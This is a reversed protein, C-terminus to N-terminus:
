KELVAVFGGRPLCEVNLVSGKKVKLVVVEFSKDDEGDKILKINYKGKDLFNFNIQLTQKEDKGNIGGLYWQNGKKRAIIVNEGPYGEVLKTNDWAVPVNKLFEKPEQPLDYYAQPRDAFHQFGSEFVVSLALEHAYSTIHPHQSDSFTVPTYDMSGIVNRTFPLTANHVAAKSTLVSKNNYWEAGYVAETTMVNPYTRAWGRPVTAGHFNVMIQYKAADKLIDIYYKMMDQQDGNFFDVKIGYVGIDKLWALEKNRKESTLMRDVPTPELWETGSNYWMLPKIGKSNADNVAAVIDGGNTMVDWEWDILVYPWKMEVALDTYEVVKQYDKSGHNFAWYIWSVAGPKIWSTEKIKVPESVDTILTSEVVDSLQGINLAHWQSTWPLTTKVGEQKFDNRAPPYTVKYQNPNKINTLRAACNNETINAESLLVWVPNNNNIKFLAPFGWVQKNDEGKGTDSFPFFDEYSNHFPQVWRHTSEPITYTTTEDIIETLADSKETFEYRFAVGDNYVRFVINMPKNNANVYKFVKENALNECWKRKGSIMEYKENVPESESEGVCRLNGSFQQDKRLIGLPSNPIVETYGSKNKYLVKFYVEGLVKAGAQHEVIVKIKKNPSVMEQAHISCIALIFLSVLLLSYKM